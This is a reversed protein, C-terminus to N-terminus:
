YHFLSIKDGIEKSITDCADDFLKSEMVKRYEKQVPFVIFSSRETGEVTRCPIYSERDIIVKGDKKLLDLRYIVSRKTMFGTRDSSIVNGLSYVVPVIRGDSTEIKDYQQICHMHSGMICDAGAEAIEKATAIERDIIKSSYEIGLLHIYVLIFEAGDKRANSIDDSLKEKSYRNLMTDCGESTLVETDLNRNIHETYSLIAVKIGNINVILNRKESGDRYMGTHMFGCNDANDLTDIIGEYGGDANHNNALVLADFGAYRVGDLYEAPANCHYRVGTHHDVRHIERAYPIRASVITELNAIALDAQKLVPRLQKFSPKFDYSDDFFCAESMVPECMLDGACMITACGSRGGNYTWVGKKVTYRTQEASGAENRCIDYGFDIDSKKYVKAKENSSIDTYRGENLHKKSFLSGFGKLFGKDSM